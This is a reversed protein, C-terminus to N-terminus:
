PLAQPAYEMSADDQVRITISQFTTPGVLRGIVSTYPLWVNMNGGGGFAAGAPKAIGIM